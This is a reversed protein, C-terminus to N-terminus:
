NLWGNYTPTEPCFFRYNQALEELLVVCPNVLHADLVELEAEETCQKDEDAVTSQEKGVSYFTAVEIADYFTNIGCQWEINANRTAPISFFMNDPMNSALADIIETINESDIDHNRALQAVINSHRSALARAYSLYFNDCAGIPYYHVEKLCLGTRKAEIEVPCFNPSPSPFVWDQPVYTVYSPKETAPNSAQCALFFVTLAFASFEFQKPLPM